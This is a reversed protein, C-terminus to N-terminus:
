PVPRVASIWPVSTPMANRITPRGEASTNPTMAASAASSGNPPVASTHIGAAITSAACPRQPAVAKMTSHPANSTESTSLTTRGISTEPRAGTLVSVTNMPTSPPMAANPAM